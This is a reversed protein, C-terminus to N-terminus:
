RTVGEGPNGGRDHVGPNGVRCRALSGRTPRDSRRVRGGARCRAALRLRRDDAPQIGPTGPSATLTIATRVATCFGLDDLRVDAQERAFRRLVGALLRLDEIEGLMLVMPNFDSPLFGIRLVNLRSRHHRHRPLARGHGGHRRGGAGRGAPGAGMRRQRDGGGRRHHRRRHPTQQRREIGSLEIM